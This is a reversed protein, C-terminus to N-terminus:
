SNISHESDLVKSDKPVRYYQWETPTYTNMWTTYVITLEMWMLIADLSMSGLPNYMGLLASNTM